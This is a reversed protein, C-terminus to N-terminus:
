IFNTEKELLWDKCLNYVYKQVFQYYTTCVLLIYKWRLVAYFSCFHMNPAKKETSKLFHLIRFDVTREKESFVLIIQMKKNSSPTTMLLHMNVSPFQCLVKHPQIRLSCRCQGILMIRLQSRKYIFGMKSQFYTSLLVTMLFVAFSNLM